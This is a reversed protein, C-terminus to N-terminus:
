VLVKKIWVILFTSRMPQIHNAPFSKCRWRGLTTPRELFQAVQWNTCPPPSGGGIRWTLLRVSQSTYAATKM